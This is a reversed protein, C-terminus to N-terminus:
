GGRSSRLWGEKGVRLVGHLVAVPHTQKSVTFTDRCILSSSSGLV